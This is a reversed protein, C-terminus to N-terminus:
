AGRGVRHLRGYLRLRSVGGDPIINFRVHSVPGPSREIAERFEHVADATLPQEPLLTPWFQSETVLSADTAREVFAAQISCRDPFNGKFHATDVVVREIVGPHGLAVICWDSGPERRRRTEWGDGMNVSRGPHLIRPTGYHADNWAVVRGGNVLAALDHEAAPDASDWDPRAEGYVRLRAIGGDPLIHVRLHTWTREDSIAHFHHTDGKLSIAPLIEVWRADDDPDGGPCHCAEVSAAPPFNGTFFSTDIDVGHIVGPIALRIVAHDHGGRRRRRTEWGDMWKGHDDFRDPYFVPLSPDLMRELPAFFEDTAYVAAAGSSADALNIRGQAFAPLETPAAEIRHESSM